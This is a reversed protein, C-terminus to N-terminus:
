LTRKMAVEESITPVDYYFACDKMLSRWMLTQNDDDGEIKFRKPADVETDPNSFNM